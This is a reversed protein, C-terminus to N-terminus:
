GDVPVTMQILQFTAGQVDAVVSIHGVSVEFPEKFVQGDLEKVKATSASIDAVSFYVSWCPPVDQLEAPTEMLGGNMRDGNKIMWYNNPANDEKEFTWRLLESYFRMAKECDRTM